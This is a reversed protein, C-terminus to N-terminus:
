IRIKNNKAQRDYYFFSPSVLRRRHYPKLISPELDVELIETRWVDLSVFYRTEKKDNVWERGRINFSFVMNTGIPIEEMLAVRDKTVQMKVKQPYKDETEIVFELIQYGSDFVKKDFKKIVKGTLKLENM